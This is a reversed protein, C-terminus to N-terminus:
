RVFPVTGITNSTNILKSRLFLFLVGFKCSFSLFVAWISPVKLFVEYIQVTLLEPYTERSPLGYVDSGM